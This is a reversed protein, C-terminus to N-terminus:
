SMTEETEGTVNPAETSTPFVIEAGCDRGACVFRDNDWGGGYMPHMVEGCIDCLVGNRKMSIDFQTAM